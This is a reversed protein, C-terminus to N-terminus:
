KSEDKTVRSSYILVNDDRKTILYAATFAGSGSGFPEEEKTQWIGDFLEKM